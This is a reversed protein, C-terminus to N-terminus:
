TSRGMEFLLLTLLLASLALSALNYGEGLRAARWVQLILRLGLLVAVAVLPPTPGGVLPSLLSLAVALLLVVSLQWLLDPGRQSPQEPVAQDSEM